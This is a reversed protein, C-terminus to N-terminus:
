MCADSPRYKLREWAIIAVFVEFTEHVVEAIILRRLEATSGNVNIQAAARQAQEEM